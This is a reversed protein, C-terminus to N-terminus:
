RFSFGRFFFFFKKRVVSINKGADFTLKLIQQVVYSNGYTLIVDGDVIKESVNQFILSYILGRFFFDFFFCSFLCSM